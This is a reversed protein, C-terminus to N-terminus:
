FSISRRISVSRRSGPLLEYEGVAEVEMRKEVADMDCIRLTLDVDDDVQKILRQMFVALVKNPETGEGMEGVTTIMAKSMASRLRMERINDGYAMGQLMMIMLLAAALVACIGKGTNNRKKYETEEEGAHVRLIHIDTSGDYRENRFLSAMASNIGFIGLESLFEGCLRDPDDTGTVSKRLRSLEKKFFGHTMIQSRSLAEWPECIEKYIGLATIWGNLQSNIENRLIRLSRDNEKKNGKKKLEQYMGELQRTRKSEKKNDQAHVNRVNVAMDELAKLMDERHEGNDEMWVLVDHVIYTVPDGRDIISLCERTDYEEEEADMMRDICEDIRAAMEEDYSLVTGTESLAPLLAGHWGYSDILQVAYERQDSNKHRM